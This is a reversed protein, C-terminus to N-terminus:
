KWVWRRLFFGLINGGNQVVTYRYKSTGRFNKTMYLHTLIYKADLILPAIIWTSTDSRLELWWCWLPVVYCWLHRVGEAVRTQPNFVKNLSVVFFDDILDAIHQAHTCPVLRYGTSRSCIALLTISNWSIVDDLFFNPQNSAAKFGLVRCTVFYEETLDLSM